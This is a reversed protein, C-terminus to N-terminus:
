KLNTSFHCTKRWRNKIDFEPMMFGKALMADGSFGSRKEAVFIGNGIKGIQNHILYLRIVKDCPEMYCLYAVSQHSHKFQILLGINLTTHQVSPGHITFDLCDVVPSMEESPIRYLVVPFFGPWELWNCSDMLTEVPDHTCSVGDAVYDDTSVSSGFGPRSLLSHRHYGDTRQFGTWRTREYFSPSPWILWCSGNKARLSWTLIRM